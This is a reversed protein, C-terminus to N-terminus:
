FETLDADSTDDRDDQKGPEPSLRDFINEQKSSVEATVGSFAKAPTIVETLAAQPTM